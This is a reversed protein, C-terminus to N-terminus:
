VNNLIKHQKDIRMRGLMWKLFYKFFINAFELLDAIIPLM